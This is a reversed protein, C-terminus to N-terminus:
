PFIFGDDKLLLKISPKDYLGNKISYIDLYDSIEYCITNIDFMTQIKLLLDYDNILNTTDKMWEYFNDEIKKKKYKKFHKLVIYLNMRQNQKNYDTGSLICIQKLENLNIKLENLISKLDYVVCKHNLLSFYRIVRPCGYVFMDMDESLCGWVKGKINLYACIEDAEGPADIYTFGFANILQKVIEFDKKTLYVFQKRLEDMKNQINNCEDEDYNESDMKNKLINFEQQAQKKQERREEILEKKETPIKGDFIFVPIIQYHRFISFMLYMNEILDNEGVFKFMYIDIDVVIKKGSLERVGIEKISKKCETKLFNNLFKIGM